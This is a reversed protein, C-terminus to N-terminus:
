QPSDYKTNITISNVCANHNKCHHGLKQCLKCRMPNPIYERVNVSRWSINVKSLLNYLDFILLVVGCFIQKEGEKKMFKLVSTVGQKSFEEIIESEPVNNLYPAYVTGKSSNLTDHYKTVYALMNSFREAMVKNKLRFLLNVDRMESISLIDKSIVQISKHVSFPSYQSLSKRDDASSVIIYKPNPKQIIPLGPFISFPKSSYKKKKTPVRSSCLM